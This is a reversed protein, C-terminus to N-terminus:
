QSRRPRREGRVPALGLIAMFVGIVLLVDIELPRDTDQVM